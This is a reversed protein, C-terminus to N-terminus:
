QPQGQHPPEGLLFQEARLRGQPTDCAFDLTSVWIAAPDFKRGAADTFDRAPLVATEKLGPKVSAVALTYGPTGGHANLIFQCNSWDFADRNEIRFLSQAHSFGIEASLGRDAYPAPQSPPTPSSAASRAAAPAAPASGHQGSCGLLLALAASLVIPLGSRFADGAAPGRAAAPSRSTM